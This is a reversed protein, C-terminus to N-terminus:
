KKNDKDKKPRLGFLRGIVEGGTPLHQPLKPDWNASIRQNEWLERAERANQLRTQVAEEEQGSIEDRLSRLEAILADLMRVSNEATLLAAKGMVKSEEPHMIPETAKAFAPGALKRAERWGPQGTTANVLAAAALTPLLRATTILGEAEVADTFLPTAGLIQTLNTALTLASEDIGPPTSIMMMSNQFLDAHASAMGTEMNLLYAPNLSPTITVFYRDEGPLLEKAWNMFTLQAPSTDILVSGAKLDQAIVEITERIEDVPLALIVVDAERVASPLNIITKDVAGAKEAQRTIGPERDNGIRYVQDKVKALALGISAGVQGLGLITIQVPM